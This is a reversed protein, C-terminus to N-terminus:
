HLSNLYDIIQKAEEKRGQLEYIRAVLYYSPRYRANIKIAENLYKLATNYDNSQAYIFGTYYYSAVNKPNLKMNRQFVQFANEPEHKNLYAMGM